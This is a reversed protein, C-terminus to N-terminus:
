EAAHELEPGKLEVTLNWHKGIIDPSHTALLVDFQSLHAMEFLDDLFQAQWAIHLSIEPEDILVLTAPEIEFLLEFLLV